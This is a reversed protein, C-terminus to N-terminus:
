EEPKAPKEKDSGGKWFDSLLVAGPPNEGAQSALLGYHLFFFHIDLKDELIQLLAGTPVPQRLTFSVPLEGLGNHRLMIPISATESLHKVVDAM